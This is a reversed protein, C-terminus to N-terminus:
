GFPVRIVNFDNELAGDILQLIKVAIGPRGPEDTLHVYPYLIVDKLSLLTAKEKINEVLQYAVSEPSKEDGKEVAIYIVMCDNEVLVKHDKDKLRDAGEIAKEKTTVKCYDSHIGLIRM